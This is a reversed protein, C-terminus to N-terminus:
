DSSSLSHNKVYEYEARILVKGSMLAAKTFQKMRYSSQVTNIEIIRDNKTVIM